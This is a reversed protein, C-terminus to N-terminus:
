EKYAEKMLTKGSADRIIGHVAGSEMIRNMSFAYPMIPMEDFIIKEGEHMLRMREVNDNTNQARTILGDYSANSWRPVNNTDSSTLLVSMYAMPDLYDGVCSNTCIDYQLEDRSKNYVKWEQGVLKIKVGLVKKYMEQIMEGYKSKGASSGFMFTLEPFGKGNPYGADALLKKAREPDYNFYTGGVKRFDSDATADPIGFPVWAYAERSAGLVKAEQLLATCDIAYSLAKRVRVDNLPKNHVNFALYNTNMFPYNKIKGAAVLRKYESEPPLTDSVDLQNSELMSMATSDKDVMYIDIESLKVKAKDWYKDNKVLTIKSNHDWDTIKFPGNCIITNVNAAWNANKEAVVSDIPFYAHSSTLRLFFDCPRELKVQLTHDDIASVGFDSVSCKGQNFKEGNKVFYLMFAAEAAYKPDVGCRWSYIYDQAVVPDGNSWKADKRLYFTYTLGDKSVDWKEAGAPLVVNDSGISCLGEYLQDAVGLTYTSSMKQPNLSEPDDPIAWRLVEKDSKSFSCGAFTGVFIFLLLLIALLKKM